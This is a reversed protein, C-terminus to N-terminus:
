LSVEGDSVKIERSCYTMLNVDHTVLIITVGHNINLDRFLKMIELSTKSDLAGTPEDAIIFKPQNVIARAIAVRQRQGGSLLKVSQKELGELGVRRLSELVLQTKTQNAIGAYLLPLEVNETVTMAEILGFNQFVFGVHENRIKSLEDDTYQDVLKEEFYYEGSFQRDLFGILNVLTSKGSGSRGMIGVFDGEAISLSVNKLITVRQKGLVYSKTVDDLTILM